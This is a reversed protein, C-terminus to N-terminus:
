GTCSHICPYMLPHNCGPLSPSLNSVALDSEISSAQLRYIMTFRGCKWRWANWTHIRHIWIKGPWLVLWSPCELSPAFFVHRPDPIKVNLKRQATGCSIWLIGYKTLYSCSAIHCNTLIQFVSLLRYLCMCVRLFETM